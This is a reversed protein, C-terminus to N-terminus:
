SCLGANKQKRQHKNPSLGGDWGWEAKAGRREAERGCKMGPRALSEVDEGKLSFRGLLWLTVSLEVTISASVPISGEPM